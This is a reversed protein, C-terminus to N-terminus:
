ATEPWTHGVSKEFSSRNVQRWTFTARHFDFVAGFRTGFKIWQMDPEDDSGTFFWGLFVLGKESSDKAGLPVFRVPANAVCEKYQLDIFVGYARVRDDNLNGFWEMTEEETAYRGPRFQLVSTVPNRVARFTPMGEKLAAFATAEFRKKDRSVVQEDIEDFEFIDDVSGAAESMEYTTWDFRGTEALAMGEFRDPFITEAWAEVVALKIDYYLGEVVDIVNDMTYRGHIVNRTIASKSRELRDLLKQIDAPTVAVSPEKDKSKRQVAHESLNRLRAAGGSPRSRGRPTSSFPRKAPSLPGSGAM